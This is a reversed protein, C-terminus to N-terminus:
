HTSAPTVERAALPRWPPASAAWPLAAAAAVVVSTASAQAGLAQFAQGHGSFLSAVAMSVEDGAATLVGTVAGGGCARRDRGLRHGGFGVGGACVDGSGGGCVGDSCRWTMSVDGRRIFIFM